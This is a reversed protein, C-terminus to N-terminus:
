YEQKLVAPAKIVDVKPMNGIDFRINNYAHASTAVVVVKNIGADLCKKVNAEVDSKGTEIEFAINRGNKGALVDITRGGGIPAEETVKYGQKKLHEAVVKVWYKHEPSGNRNSHSSIIGLSKEGKETLLLGKVGGKYFSLNIIYVLGKSVLSKQINNGVRFNIGLRLYRETIRLAPYHLIGRM